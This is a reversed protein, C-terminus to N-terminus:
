QLLTIRLWMVCERKKKEKKWIIGQFLWYYWNQNTTVYKSSMLVYVSAVSKAFRSLYLDLFVITRNIKVKFILGRFTLGHSQIQINCKRKYLFQSFLLLICHFCTLLRWKWSLKYKWLKNESKVFFIIMQKEIWDQEKQSWLIHLYLSSRHERMIDM